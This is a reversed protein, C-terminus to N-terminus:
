SLDIFAGVDPGVGQPQAAYGASSSARGEIGVSIWFGKQKGSRDSHIPLTDREPTIALDLTLMPPKWERCNQPGTGNRGSTNSDIIRLFNASCVHGPPPHDERQRFRTKTWGQWGNAVYRPHSIDLLSGGLQKGADGTADPETPSVEPLTAYAFNPKISFIRDSRDGKRCNARKVVTQGPNRNNGQFPDTATQIRWRPPSKTPTTDEPVWNVTGLGRQELRWRSLKDYKAGTSAAQELFKNKRRRHGTSQDDSYPLM